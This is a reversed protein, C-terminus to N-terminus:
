ISSLPNSQCLKAIDRAVIETIIQENNPNLRTIWDARTAPKPTPPIEQIAIKQSPAKRRVATIKRHEAMIKEALDLRPIDTKNEDMASNSTEKTSPPTKPTDIAEIPVPIERLAEKEEATIENFVIPKKKTNQAPTNQDYPPMIDHARLVDKKSQPVDNDFQESNKAKDM